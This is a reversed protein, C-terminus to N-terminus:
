AGEVGLIWDTVNLWVADFLGLYLACIIVTIIVVVTASTTDDREPWTVKSLEDVVETCLEYVPPYKLCFIAAGFGIAYGLILTLTLERTLFSQDEWGLQVWTWEFGRSLTMGVIAGLVMLGVFVYRGKTASMKERGIM